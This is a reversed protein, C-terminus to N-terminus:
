PEIERELSSSPLPIARKSKRKPGWELAIDLIQEPTLELDSPAQPDGEFYEDPWFILDSIRDDPINIRLMDIWFDIQHATGDAECVRRLMELLESRTIDAVRLDIPSALVGRVFTEADTAGSFSFDRADLSPGALRNFESRLANCDRLDPSCGDLQDALEALRRILRKDHKPPMLAPRLRM